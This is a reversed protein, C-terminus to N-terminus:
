IFDFDTTKEKQHDTKKTFSIDGVSIKNNQKNSVEQPLLFFRISALNTFEEETFYSSFKNQLDILDEFGSNNIDVISKDVNYINKIFERGFNIEQDEKGCATILLLSIICFLLLLLKRM